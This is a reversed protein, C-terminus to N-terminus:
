LKQCHDELLKGEETGHLFLSILHSLGHIGVHLQGLEPKEQTPLDGLGLIDLGDGGEDHLFDFLITHIQGKKM